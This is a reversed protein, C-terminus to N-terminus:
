PEHAEMSFRSMSDKSSGEHALFYAAYDLTMSISEDLEDAVDVLGEVVLVQIDSSIGDVHRKTTIRRVQM